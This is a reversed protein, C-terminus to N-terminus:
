EARRQKEKLYARRRKQPDYPRSSEYSAKANKCVECRCGQRYLTVGHDEPRSPDKRPKRRAESTNCSIHSFSINAMDFYMGLPDASDLWPEKHEISFTQRTM